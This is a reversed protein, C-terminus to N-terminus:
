SWEWGAMQITCRCHRHIQPLIAPYQRFFRRNKLAIADFDNESRNTYRAYSTISTLTGFDFTLDGRLSAQYFDEDRDNFGPTWDAARPRAPALPYNAVEPFLGAPVQPQIAVLQGALVDSRDVWGSLSAEFKLSDNPKWDLLFRGQFQEVKGNKDDRTYSRQWGGGLMGKGAVRFSVTDNLPGSLYGNVDGTAFRGFGVGFGAVWRDTPKAAVYNVAGGTSNQGFLTGQPGKLVEVRELDLAAGRTMVAFPLPVQDVYVTVAPTASLTTEYFGIGRITYVPANYHTPTYNFGPVIKVLDATDNVGRDVLTEQTAATISIGVKNISQERKQATVIIEGFSTNQVSTAVDDQTAAHVLTVNSTGAILLAIAQVTAASRHTTNM